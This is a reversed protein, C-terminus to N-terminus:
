GHLDQSLAKIGQAILLRHGLKQVDLAAWIMPDLSDLISNDNGRPMWAAAIQHLNDFGHQLRPLYRLMHGKGKDLGRLWEELETTMMKGQHAQEFQESRKRKQRRKGGRCHRTVAEADLVCFYDIGDFLSDIEITAEPEGEYHIQRLVLECQTRLRHLARRCSALDKGGNKRKFDHICFNELRDVFHVWGQKSSIM